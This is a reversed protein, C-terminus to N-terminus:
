VTGCSPYKAYIKTWIYDLDTERDLMVDTCHVTHAYNNIYGDLPRGAMLARHLKRIMFACHAQHFEWTVFLHEYKGTSVNALPVENEARHSIPQMYYAWPNRDLFQEVLEEDFCQPPLWSFSMIDFHCGLRRADDPSSGCPSMSLVGTDQSGDFPRITYVAISLIIVATIAIALRVAIHFTKKNHNPISMSEVLSEEDNDFERGDMTTLGVLCEQDDYVKTEDMM